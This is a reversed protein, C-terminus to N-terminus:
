VPEVAKGSRASELLADCVRQVNVAFRPWWDDVNGGRVIASFREIMAVEQVPAASVHEAVKGEAAHLWFRPKEPNWPRTFDDCVLSGSTGAVELWKRMSTDFGTDFSAMRDQDFWMLGSLNVDVDRYYRATAFVREPLAEFAWLAAGVCYWGLDLLSGGGLARDYRLDDEKLHSGFFTFAATVRRLLGLDGNQFVQHMEAARPHHLWMVGDMLQVGHARCAAAMEEAEAANTALPKECLVHKGREAARITWERHLAPPLPIYVADIQPDDLLAAYSERSLAAGHEAAWATGREASRSAVARLETGRAQRIAAGVRAAIRATGLIGWRIPQGADM